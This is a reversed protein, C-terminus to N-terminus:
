EPDSEEESEEVVPDPKRVASRQTGVTLFSPPTLDKPAYQLALDDVDAADMEATVPLVAWSGDEYEVQVGDTSVKTVTYIPDTM